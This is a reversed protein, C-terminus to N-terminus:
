QLQFSFHISVFHNPKCVFLLVADQKVKRKKEMVIEISVIIVHLYAGERGISGFRKISSETWYCRIRKYGNRKQKLRRLHFHISRRLRDTRSRVFSRNFAWECYIPTDRAIETKVPEHKEDKERNHQAHTPAITPVLRLHWRLHMSLFTCWIPDIKYFLTITHKGVFTLTLDHLDFFQNCM